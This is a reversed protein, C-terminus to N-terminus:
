IKRELKLINKCYTKFKETARKTKIRRNNDKNYKKFEAEIKDDNKNYLNQQEELIAKAIRSKFITISVNENKAEQLIPKWRECMQENPIEHINNYPITDSKTLNEKGPLLQHNAEKNTGGYALPMIHDDHQNDDTKTYKFNGDPRYKIFRDGTSEGYTRSCDKCVNHIGCEMGPSLNFCERVNKKEKCISCELTNTDYEEEYTNYGDINKERAMELRRKRRKNECIKCFGQLGDRSKIIVEGDQNINCGKFSFDRVPIDTPGEHKVGTKSGKIHGFNCKKTLGIKNEIFIYQLEHNSTNNKGLKDNVQRKKSPM